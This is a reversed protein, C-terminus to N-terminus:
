ERTPAPHPRTAASLVAEHSREADLEARVADPLLYPVGYIAM